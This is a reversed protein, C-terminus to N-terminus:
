QRAAEPTGPAEGAGECAGGRAAGEGCDEDARIGCYGGPIHLQLRGAPTSTDIGEGLSVFGVGLATLEDLLMILHRLNRGLRDLRWVVLTDFKRRRAAKGLEDLAPRSERAGSVGKDVFETAQWGRADCYRRLERLQNRREQDFTSVRAYIAARM